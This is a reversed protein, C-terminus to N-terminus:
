MNVLDKEFTVKKAVWHPKGALNPVKEQWVTDTCGEAELLANFTKARGQPSLTDLGLAALVPRLAGERREGRFPPIM